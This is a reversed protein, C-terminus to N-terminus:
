AEVKKLAVGSKSKQVTFKDDAGIGLESVMEAPIIISGRKGVKVEKVTKKAKGAKGAGRGGMIAPAQGSQILANAYAVKLQTSTGYGFKKMIDAQAAGDQVMKILKQHDVVKRKPM